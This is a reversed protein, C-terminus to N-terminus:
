IRTDFDLYGGPTRTWTLDFSGGPNALVEYRETQACALTAFGLTAFLSVAHCGMRQAKM